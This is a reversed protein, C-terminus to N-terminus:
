RPSWEPPLFSSRVFEAAGILPAEQQLRAPRVAPPVPTVRGLHDALSPGILTWSQAIAGGVVLVDPSFSRVWPALVEALVQMAHRFLAIARSDGATALEAIDKVDLGPVGFARILARRSVQDEVPAGRWTQHHLDGGDPVRHDRTLIRGAEVFGSGVGTGLTVCCLREPRDQARWEGLAYADADNLMLVNERPTQFERGFREKLDIGAIGAFKAVGAFSGRGTAYDFPGPLAIGWVQRPPVELEGAAAAIASIISAEDGDSDVPRTRTVRPRLAGPEVRAATVHTGGVDLVPIDAGTTM